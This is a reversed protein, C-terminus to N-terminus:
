PTVGYYNNVFAREDDNQLTIEACITGNVDYVILTDGHRKMAKKAWKKELAELTHFLEANDPELKFSPDTKSRISLGGLRQKLYYPSCPKVTRYIRANKPTPRSQMFAVLAAFFFAAFLAFPLYKSM